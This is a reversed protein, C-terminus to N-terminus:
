DIEIERGLPCYPYFSGEQQASLATIQVVKLQIRTLYRISVEADGNAACRRAPALHNPQKIPSTGVCLTSSSLSKNIFIVFFLILLDDVLFPKLYTHTMEHKFIPVLYILMNSM